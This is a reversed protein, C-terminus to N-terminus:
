ENCNAIRISSIYAMFNSLKSDRKCLLQREPLRRAYITSTLRASKKLAVGLKQRSLNQLQLLLLKIHIRNYYHQECFIMPFFFLVVPYYHSYTAGQTAGQIATDTASPLFACFAVAAAAVVATKEQSQQQYQHTTTTNGRPQKKQQHWSQQYCFSCNIIDDGSATM